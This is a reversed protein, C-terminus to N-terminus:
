LAKAAAKRKAKRRKKIRRVEKTMEIADHIPRINSERHNIIKVAIEGVSYGKDKAILLAELDFAWRDCECERFVDQAAKQSFGKIGCQSDSHDFGAVINLYKIYIKSMLKRKFTYGEYGSKDLTRSGIYIDKNEERFAKEFKAIVETGYALDCDTFLVFDGKAALMGTRVAYGKGHNPMYGIVRLAPHDAIMAEAKEKCADRSGDSVFIMEYEGAGFDALLQADLAAIAEEVIKEENYMPIIVSLKM